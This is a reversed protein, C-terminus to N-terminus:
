DLVIDPLDRDPFTGILSKKKGQLVV